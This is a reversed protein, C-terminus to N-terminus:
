LCRVDDSMPMSMPTPTSPRSRAPRAAGPGREAITGIGNPNLGRIPHTVYSGIPSRPPRSRLGGVCLSSGRLRGRIPRTPDRPAGAHSTINHDTLPGRFGDRARDATLLAARGSLRAIRTTNPYSSVAGLVAVGPGRSRKEESCRFLVTVDLKCHPEGWGAM